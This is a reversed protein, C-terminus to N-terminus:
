YYYILINLITPMVYFHFQFNKARLIKDKFPLCNKLKMITRKRQRGEGTIIVYIITWKICILQNFKDGNAGNIICIRIFNFILRDDSCHHWNRYFVSFLSFSCNVTNITTVKLRWNKVRWNSQAHLQIHLHMIVLLSSTCISTPFM